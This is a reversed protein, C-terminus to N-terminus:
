LFMESGSALIQSVARPNNIAYNVVYSGAKKLATFIKSLIRKHDANASAFDHQGIFILAQDVELSSGVYSELRWLTTNHTFEWIINFKVRITPPAAPFVTGVDWQYKGSVVLCAYDHGANQSPLVLERDNESDPVWFCYCGKDLRGDYKTVGDGISAVKEWNQLVGPQSGANNTFYNTTCTDAPLRACAISGGNNLVSGEYTVFLSMAVPRIKRVLGANLYPNTAETMVPTIQVSMSGGADLTPVATLQMTFTYAIPSTAVISQYSTADGVFSDDTIYIVEVGAPFVQVLPFANPYGTAAICINFTGM